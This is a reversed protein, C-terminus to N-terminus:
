YYRTISIHFSQNLTVFTQSSTPHLYHLPLIDKRRKGKGYFYYRICEAWIYTVGVLGAWWGLCGIGLPSHHQAYGASPLDQHTFSAWPSPSWLSSPPPHTPYGREMASGIEPKV